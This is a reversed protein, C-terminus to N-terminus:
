WRVGIVVGTVVLIGVCWYWERAIRKGKHKAYVAEYITAVFPPIALELYSLPQPLVRKSFWALVIISIGTTIAIQIHPGLLFKKLRSM